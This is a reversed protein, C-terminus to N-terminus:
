NDLIIKLNDHEFCNWGSQMTPFDEIFVGQPNVFIPLKIITQHKNLSIDYRVSIRLYYSSKILNTEVSSANKDGESIKLESKFEFDKEYVMASRAAIWTVRDLSSVVQNIFVNKEKGAFEMELLIEAVVHNIPVSCKSNDPILRYNVFQKVVLDEHTTLLITFTSTGKSMCCLGSVMDSTTTEKIHCARSSQSRICIDTTATFVEDNFTLKAIMMYSILAKVYTQQPDVGSYSFTAPLHSPLKYSFFYSHRGAPINEMRRLVSEHSFIDRTMKSISTKQSYIEVGEGGAFFLTLNCNSTEKPLDVVLKGELSEGAVFYKNELILFIEPPLSQMIETVAKQVFTESLPPHDDEEALIDDVEDSDVSM